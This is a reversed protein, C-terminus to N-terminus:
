RGRAAIEALGQVPLAPGDIRLVAWGGGDCPTSSSRLGWLACVRELARVAREAVTIVASAELDARPARGGAAQRELWDTLRADLESSLSSSNSPEPM